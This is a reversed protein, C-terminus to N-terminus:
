SYREILERFSLPYLTGSKRQIVDGVMKSFNKKVFKSLIDYVKEEFKFQPISVIANRQGKIGNLARRIIKEQWPLNYKDRLIKEVLTMVSAGSDGYYARVLQFNTILDEKGKYYNYVKDSKEKAKIAIAQQELEKRVRSNSM